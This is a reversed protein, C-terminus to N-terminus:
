HPSYVRHQFPLFIKIDHRLNELPDLTHQQKHPLDLILKTVSLFDLIHFPSFIFNSSPIKCYTTCIVTFSIISPNDM